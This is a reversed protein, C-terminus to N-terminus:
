LSVNRLSRTRACLGQQFLLLSSLHCFFFSKRACHEGVRTMSADLELPAAGPPPDSCLLAACRDLLAGSRQVYDDTAAGLKAWELPDISDLTM